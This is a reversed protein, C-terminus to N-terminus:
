IIYIHKILSSYLGTARPFDDLRGTKRARLMHIEALQLLIRSQREKNTSIVAGQFQACLRQETESLAEIM